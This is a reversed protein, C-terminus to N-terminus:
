SEAPYSSASGLSTFTLRRDPSLRVTGDLIGEVVGAHMGEAVKPIQSRFADAAPAPLHALTAILATTLGRSVIQEAEERSMDVDWETAGDFLKAM